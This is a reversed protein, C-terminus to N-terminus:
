QYELVKEVILEPPILQFCEPYSFKNHRNHCQDFTKYWCGTNECCKLQGITNLYQQNKYKEWEPEERGGAIVVCPKDFAAATHMQLSVAGISGEAHYMLVFYDILNDTKGIFNNVGHLLSNVHSSHGTQIIDCNFKSEKKLLNIVVQYYPVPYGKLPMDNKIGSNILWYPKEIKYKEKFINPDKQEKTLFIYPKVLTKKINLNLKENIIYIFCDSYHLGQKRLQEIYGISCLDIETIEENENFKYTNTYYNRFFIEPYYSFVKTVFTYPYSIQLDRLAITLVLLDGPAQFQIFKIQRMKRGPM